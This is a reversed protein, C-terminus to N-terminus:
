SEWGMAKVTNRLIRPFDVSNLGFRETNIDISKMVCGDAHRESAARWDALAEILDILTMDNVGDKHHEPHHANHKYHHDLAPKMEELCQKYEDSGYTMGKLRKTYIDFIEVEPSLMKSADHDAERRMLESRVALLLERVRWIHAMTQERVSEM